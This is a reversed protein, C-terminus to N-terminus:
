GTWWVQQWLGDNGEIVGVGDAEPMLAEGAETLVLNRACLDGNYALLGKGRLRTVHGYPLGALANLALGIRSALERFTPPYGKAMTMSWIAQLVELQRPTPAKVGCGKGEWGQESAGM